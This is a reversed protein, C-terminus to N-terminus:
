KTNEKKLPKIFRDTKEDYALGHKQMQYFRNEEDPLHSIRSTDKYFKMHRPAEAGKIDLADYHKKTDHLYVWAHPNESLNNAEAWGVNKGHKEAHQFYQRSNIKEPNLGNEKFADYLSDQFEFCRGGSCNADKNYGSKKITSKVIKSIKLHIDEEENLKKDSTWSPKKILKIRGTDINDNGVDLGLYKPVEKKTRLKLRKKFDKPTEEQEQIKKKAYLKHKREEVDQGQYNKEWQDHPFASVTEGSSLAKMEIGPKKSLEKWNNFSGPSHESSSIMNQHNQIIHNYVDTMKFKASSHKGAWGVEFDGLFEHGTINAKIRRSKNHVVLYAQSKPNDPRSFHYLSHENDLKSIRKAGKYDSKSLQMNLDTEDRDSIKPINHVLKPMEELMEMILSELHVTHIGSDNKIKKAGKAMKKYISAKKNAFDDSQDTPYFTLTKPKHEDVFEKVVKAVHRMIPIANRSRGTESHMRDNVEFNVDAENTDHDHCINVRVHDSNVEAVHNHYVHNYFNSKRPTKWEENLMELIVSELKVTSYYRKDVIEKGGAMKHYLRKKKDQLIPNDDVASFYIEKPKHKDVFEKVVKAVHKMIPISNRSTKNRSNIKGNVTFAIDTSNSHKNHTFGIDVLDGNVKALHRHNEMHNALPSVQPEQWEEKILKLKKM